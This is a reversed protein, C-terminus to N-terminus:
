VFFVMATDAQLCDCNDKNNRPVLPMNQSYEFSIDTSMQKQKTKYSCLMEGPKYTETKSAPIHLNM